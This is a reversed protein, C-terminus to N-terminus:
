LNNRIRWCRMCPGGPACWADPRPWCRLWEIMQKTHFDYPDDMNFSNPNDAIGTSWLTPNAGSMYKEQVYQDMYVRKFKNDYFSSRIIRRAITCTGISVGWLEEPSDNEDYEPHHIRSPMPISMLRLKLEAPVRLKSILGCAIRTDMDSFVHKALEVKLDRPLASILDDM